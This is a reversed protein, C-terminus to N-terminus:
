DACPAGSGERGPAFPAGLPSQKMHASLECLIVGVHLDCAQGPALVTDDRGGLQDREPDIAIADPPPSLLTTKVGNVAAHVRNAM